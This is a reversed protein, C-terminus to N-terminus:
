NGKVVVTTNGVASLGGGSANVATNGALLSGGDLVLSVNDIVAVGGGIYQSCTNNLVQSNGEITVNATDAVALGGGSAQSANNGSVLSAERILVSGFENKISSLGLAKLNNKFTKEFLAVNGGSPSIRELSRIKDKITLM